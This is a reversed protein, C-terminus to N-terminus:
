SALLADCQAACLFDKDTLGGASHTWYEIRCKNYGVSLDAHHDERHSLWAHANVFAMTEYYDKFAYAKVLKGNEITWGQLAKLREKAQAENM